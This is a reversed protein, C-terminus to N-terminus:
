RTFENHKTPLNGREKLEGRLLEAQKDNNDYISKQIEIVKYQEM